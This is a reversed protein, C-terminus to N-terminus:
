VVRALYCNWGELKVANLFGSYIGIEVKTNLGCCLMQTIFM